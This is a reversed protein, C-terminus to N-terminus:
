AMEAKWKEPTPLGLHPDAETPLSPLYPENWDHIFSYIATLVAHDM